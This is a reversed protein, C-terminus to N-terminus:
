PLLVGLHFSRNAPQGSQNWTQVFVGNALNTRGVVSIFGTPSVGVNGTLGITGLYAGTNVPANFVVQYQGLGLLAVSVAGEGRVLGGNASVVAFLATAQLVGADDPAALAAKAQEIDAKSVPPQEVLRGDVRVAGPDVGPSPAAIAIGGGVLSLALAGVALLMTKRGFIKAM